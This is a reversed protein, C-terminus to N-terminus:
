MLKSSAVHFPSKNDVLTKSRHANTSGVLHELSFQDKKVRQQPTPPKKNVKLLRNSPVNFPNKGGNLSALNFKNVLDPDPRRRLAAAASSPLRSLM